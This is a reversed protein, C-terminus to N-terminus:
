GFVFGCGSKVFQTIWNAFPYLAIQRGDGTLPPSGQHLAWDNLPVLAPVVFFFPRSLCRLGQNLQTNELKNASVFHASNLKM